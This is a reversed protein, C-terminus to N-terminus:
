RGHRPGRLGGHGFWHGIGHAPRQDTWTSPYMGLGYGPSGLVGYGRFGPQLAAGGLNILPGRGYAHDRYGYVSSKTHYPLAYWAGKGYARGALGEPGYGIADYGRPPDYDARAEERPGVWAASALIGVGLWAMVSRVRRRWGARM